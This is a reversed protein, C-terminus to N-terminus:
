RVSHVLMPTEEAGDIMGRGEDAEGGGERWKIGGFIVFYNRYAKPANESLLLM